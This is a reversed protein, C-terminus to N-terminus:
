PQLQENRYSAELPSNWVNTESVQFYLNHNGKRTIILHFLLIILKQNM